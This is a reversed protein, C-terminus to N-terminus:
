VDNIIQIIDYLTLAPVNYTYEFIQAIVYPPLNEKKLMRTMERLLKIGYKYKHEPRLVDFVGEIRFQPDNLLQELTGDDGSASTQKVIALILADRGPGPEVYELADIPDVRPDKALLLVVDRHQNKAALKIAANDYTSPNLGLDLLKVVTDYNGTESFFIIAIDNDAHVDFYDYDEWLAAVMESAIKENLNHMSELFLNTRNEYEQEYDM